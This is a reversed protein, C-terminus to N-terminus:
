VNSNYLEEYKKILENIPEYLYPINPRLNDLDEVIGGYIEKFNRLAIQRVGEMNSNLYMINMRKKVM